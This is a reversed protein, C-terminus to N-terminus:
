LRSRGSGSLFLNTHKQCVQNSIGLTIRYVEFVKLNGAGVTTNAVGSCRERGWEETLLAAYYNHHYYDIILYLVNELHKLTFCLWNCIQM